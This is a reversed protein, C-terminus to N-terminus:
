CLKKEKGKIFKRVGEHNIYYVYEVRKVLSFDLSSNYGSGKNRSRPVDFHPPFLRYSFGRLMLPSSDIQILIAGDEISPNTKLASFYIESFNNDLPIDIKPQPNRTMCVCYPLPTDGRYLIVIVCHKLNNSKFIKILGKEIFKIKELKEKHMPNM